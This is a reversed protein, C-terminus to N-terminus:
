GGSRIRRMRQVVPLLEPDPTRWLALAARALRRAESPDDRLELEAQQALLRPIAAAYDVAIRDDDTPLHALFHDGLARARTSDGLQVMIRGIHYAAEADLSPITEALITDVRATV